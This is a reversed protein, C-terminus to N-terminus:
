PRSARRLYGGGGFRLTDPAAADTRLLLDRWGDTGPALPRAGAGPTRALVQVHAHGGCGAYAAVERAGDPGVFAVIRDEVEDANLDGRWSQVAVVPKPYDAARAPRATDYPVIRVEVAGAMRPLERDAELIHVFPGHVPCDNAGTPRIRESAHDLTYRGGGFRLVKAHIADSNPDSSAARTMWLLDRWVTGGARRSGGLQPEDAYDSKWIQAHEAGQCQAFVGIMTGSYQETGALALVRLPRGVSDHAGDTQVPYAYTTDSGSEIRYWVGRAGFRGEPNAAASSTRTIRVRPSGPVCAGPVRFATTDGRTEPGPEAPRESACAAALALLLAIPARRM